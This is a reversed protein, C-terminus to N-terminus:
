EEEKEEREEERKPEPAETQTDEPVLDDIVIQQNEDMKYKPLEPLDNLSGYGFMKLFDNTVEYVLPRGPADSKGTSKILGYEVLKYVSADSNVGRIADIEARTIKPNYAIISLTELSANSLKPKARNDLVPYIYEYLDKKTCLQYSNNVKIIEIGRNEKKYKEQMSAIINEIDEEPLEFTVVFEKINVEKGAAFLMAEIISQIKEIEM